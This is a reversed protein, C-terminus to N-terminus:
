QQTHVSLTALVPTNGVSLSSKSEAVVFTIMEFLGANGVSTTTACLTDVSVVM